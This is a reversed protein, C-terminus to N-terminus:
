AVEAAPTEAKAKGRTLKLEKNITFKGTFGLAGLTDGVAKMYAAISGKVVPGKESDVVEASDEWNKRATKGKEAARKESLAVFGSLDVSETGDTSFSQLETAKELLAANYMSKAM